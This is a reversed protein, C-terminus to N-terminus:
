FVAGIRMSLIDAARAQGAPPLEPILERLRECVPRNMYAAEDYLYEGNVAGANLAIDYYYQLMQCWATACILAGEDGFRACAYSASTALLHARCWGEALGGSVVSAKFTDYPVGKHALTWEGGLVRVTFDDGPGDEAEASVVSARRARLEDFLAATDLEELDISDIVERAVSMDAGPLHSARRRQAEQEAILGELFPYQELLTEIEKARPASSSSSSSLPTGRAPLSRLVVVLPLWDSDSAVIRGGVHVLGRLVEIDAMPAVPLCSADISRANATETCGSPTGITPM